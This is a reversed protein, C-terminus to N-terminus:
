ELKMGTAKVIQAFKRSDNRMIEGLQEPTSPTIEIGIPRVKAIAPPHQAAKAITASLRDVIAKPTGARTVIAVQIPFDYNALGMAEMVTPVDLAQKHRSRTAVALLRLRGAKVFEALATIGLMGYSVDGRLVSEIAEGGGKFVIAQINLALASKFSEGIVHNLGGVGTVSYTMTGPKEKAQAVLSQVDRLPSAGNVYILLGEGTYMLSVPSLDRLPEYPLDTRLAPLVGWHSPDAVMLTHGDPPSNMLEVIAPVGGGGSRNEIIVPKGLLLTMQEALLRAVVDPGGSPYPVLMRVTRSPFDQAGAPASGIVLLALTAFCALRIAVFPMSVHGICRM